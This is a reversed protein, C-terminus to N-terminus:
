KRRLIVQTTTALIIGMECLHFNPDQPNLLRGLTAPGLSPQPPPLPPLPGALLSRYHGLSPMPGSGLPTLTLKHLVSLLDRSPLLPSSVFASDRDMHGKYYNRFVRRGM